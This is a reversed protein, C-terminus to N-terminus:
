LAPPAPFGTLSLADGNLFVVSRTSVDKLRM